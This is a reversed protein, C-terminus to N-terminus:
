AGPPGLVRDLYANRFRGDPDLKNRIDIFESWRPYVRSLSDADRFHLKGWHPRGDFTKMLEEVARFYPEYDMGRYLHVAIYCTERGHAPSLTIDDGKVFRVEVPFNVKFGRDDIMSRIGEIAERANRRPIAYEMESFRVLRPSAYIHDSRDVKQMKGIGSAVVNRMLSPIKDPRARGYRSVLGFAVNSMIIESKFAKWPRRPTPERDTRNNRKMHVVSSHPFWFFEFHENGAIYDDLSGLVEDLDAGEERAHLNFAPECQLTVTSIVGLSGISVQAARFVREDAEPSCRLTSGDACVLTMHTVFTALNGFGIGTGHTATSIAGAISQYAIDGLNSMALGAAALEQNLQKISIGAQVTVTGANRDVDLVSNYRDLSIMVGDTCAIDTFSHGAGRVKVAQGKLAAAEVVARIEDESSPRALSVPNCSQTRGWNRWKM